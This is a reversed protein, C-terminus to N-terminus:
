ADHKGTQPDQVMVPQGTMPDIQPPIAPSPQVPDRPPDYVLDHVHGDPAPSMAGVGTDTNLYVIHYHRDASAMDTNEMRGPTATIKLDQM